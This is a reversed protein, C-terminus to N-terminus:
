NRSILKIFFKEYPLKEISYEMRFNFSKNLLVLFKLSEINVTLGIFVVPRFNLIKGKIFYGGIHGEAQFVGNALYKFNKFKNFDNLEYKESFEYHLKLLEIEKLIDEKNNFNNINFNNGYLLIYILLLCIVLHFIFIIFLLYIKISAPTQM